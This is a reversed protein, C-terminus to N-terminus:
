NDEIEKETKTQVSLKVTKGNFNVLLEELSLAGVEEIEISSSDLDLVGEASLQHTETIKETLKSKAM